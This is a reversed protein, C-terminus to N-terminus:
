NTNAFIQSIKVAAHGDGYFNPHNATEIVTNYVKDLIDNCIPKALVNWNGTTTEVAEIADRVTVCGVRLMYAERLLGGSDTIIHQANKAFFITELYGAPQAFWINSYESPQLKELLIKTRPHVLFIVPHELQQLAALIEHLNQLNATNEARHITSLYWKKPLPKEGYLPQLREWFTDPDTKEIKESYYTLADCMVDGVKHVGQTIGERRLCNVANDTNCFLMSSVHDTVIRNIEEPIHKDYARLGAEVHAIPFLLKAASLAGAMTSNTDGYVMMYDPKESLLIEEIGKLMEATQHAHSGSGVRLNYDPQPIDLEDFFIDSLSADYHQGTHLLIEQHQRRLVRSVAAAKIFQPRAGVVTLIKM